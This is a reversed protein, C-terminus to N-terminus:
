REVLQAAVQERSRLNLKKLISAVHSEVTYESIMLEQAIRRNTLGRAVLAAVEKERRTLSAPQEPGPAAPATLEEESLAYEVAEEPTMAKGEGWAAAFAAEGLQARVVTVKRDYDSREVPPLPAGMTERLAEAAGYLRAARGAEEKAGAVAALGELCIASWEQYGMERSLTLSERLFRAAAEHEGQHLAIMGLWMLNVAAGWYNEMQQFLSLSEGYLAAARAYEGRHRAVEALNHLAYASTRDDGIQRCLSLAEEFLPTAREYDGQQLDQAGLANLAFAVGCEDELARYLKLAEAHFATANEFDGQHWALTGAGTLAKARAAADAHANQRLAEELWGRGEVLNSRIEWFHALAGALRLATGPEDELSWSLATRMNDHEAELRELWSGQRAGGLESEGEQALALFFAAHRSRITGADESAELKERAYQRVPELMRYRLAGGTEAEAVVLSKYILGLLLDLVDGEEIEDRAGVAEAAELTWGGAFVSLRRFLVRESEGLLDHSWDLTARLTQQRPTATRGGSLLKLSDELRESIQEVSLAGV